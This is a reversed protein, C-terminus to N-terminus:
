RSGKRREARERRERRRQSESKWPGDDGQRDPNAHLDAETAAAIKDDTTFEWDCTSCAAIWSGSALPVIRVSHREIM